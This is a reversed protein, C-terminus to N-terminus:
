FRIETLKNVISDAIVFKNLQKEEKEPMAVVKMKASKGAIVGNLSDEIVLCKVPSVNLKKATTIFVGPHPKGFDEKEASQVVDFYDIINLKKLVVNIILSPSSSALAIKLNNSKAKKLVKELGEIAEGEKKILYIVEEVIDKSLKNSDFDANLETKWYKIVEDVRMGKTRNCMDITFNFGVQKMVNIIAKKWLPESDIIIGDMDFIIAEIM